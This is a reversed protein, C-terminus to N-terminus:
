HWGGILRLTRAVDVAPMPLTGKIPLRTALGPLAWTVCSICEPAHHQVEKGTFGFASVVTIEANEQHGALDVLSRM